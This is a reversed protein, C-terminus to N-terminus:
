FGSACPRLRGSHAYGPHGFYAPAASGVNAVLKEQTTFHSSVSDWIMMLAVRVILARESPVSRPTPSGASYRRHPRHPWERATSRNPGVDTFADRVMSDISKASALTLTM